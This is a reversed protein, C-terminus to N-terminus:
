ASRDGSWLKYVLLEGEPFPGKWGCPFLGMEYASKMKALPHSLEDILLGRAILSLDAYVDDFYFYGPSGEPLADECARLIRDLCESRFTDLNINRQYVGRMTERSALTRVANWSFFPSGINQDHACREVEDHSELEVFPHGANSSATLFESIADLFSVLRPADCDPQYPISSATKRCVALKDRLDARTEDSIAFQLCEEIAQAAKEYSGTRLSFDIFVLLVRVRDESADQELLGLLAKEAEVMRGFRIQTRIKEIDQELM